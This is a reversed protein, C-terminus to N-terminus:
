VAHRFTAVRKADNFLGDESISYVVMQAEAKPPKWVRMFALRKEEKSWYRLYGHAIHSRDDNIDRIKAILRLGSTRVPRLSPLGGFCKELFELEAALQAPYRKAFKRSGPLNLYLAMVM